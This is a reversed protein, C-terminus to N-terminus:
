EEKQEAENESHAITRRVIAIILTGVVAVGICGGYVMLAIQDLMGELEPKPNNIFYVVFIGYLLVSPLMTLVMFELLCIHYKKALQQRAKEIIYLLLVASVVIGGMGGIATLIGALIVFAWCVGISALIIIKVPAKEM